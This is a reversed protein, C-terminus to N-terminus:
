NVKHPLKREPLSVLTYAENVKLEIDIDGERDNSTFNQSSAPEQPGPELQSERPPWPVSEYMHEPSSQRQNRKKGLVIGVIIIVATSLTLMLASM